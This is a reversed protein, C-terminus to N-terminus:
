KLNEDSFNDIVTKLASCVHKCILYKNQPDKQQPESLNSYVRESYGENDANYDPGNYKWFDCTCSVLVDRNKLKIKKKQAVKPVKINVLYDGVIFVWKNNRFRVLQPTYNNARNIIERPVNALLYSITTAIKKM